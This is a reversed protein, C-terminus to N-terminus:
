RWCSRASRSCRRVPRPSGAWRVTRRPRSGCRPWRRVKAARLAPALAAVVTFIVGVALTAIVVYPRVVVAAGPLDV